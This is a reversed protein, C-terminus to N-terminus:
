DEKAMRSSHGIENPRLKDPKLQGPAAFGMQADPGGVKAPQINPKAFSLLATLARLVAMMPM